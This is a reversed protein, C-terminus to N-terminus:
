TEAGVIDDYPPRHAGICAAELFVASVRLVAGHFSWLRSDQFRNLAVVKM